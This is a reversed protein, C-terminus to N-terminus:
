KVADAPVVQLADDRGSAVLLAGSAPDVDMSTVQPVSAIRHKEITEGTSVDYATISNAATSSVWLLKRQNDYALAYPSDAVPARMRMVIPQGYFAYVENNRTGAVLIRGFRDVISNTAGDGARLAAKLDGSDIDIPTLASQARDLVVIQGARDGATPPAVTIDDVRVFGGIDRQEKGDRDLVLVHGRDTGVLTRGDATVAVSQAGSLDAQQETTSGDAAIRVIGNPGAGVFGDGSATLAALRPVKVSVPAPAGPTGPAAFIQVTEGNNALVAARSPGTQAAVVATAADAGVVVGAPATVGVPSSAATAPTVTPVNQAPGDDSQSCATLASATAVAVLLATIRTRVRM